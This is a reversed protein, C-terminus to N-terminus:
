LYDGSAGYNRAQKTYRMYLYLFHGALYATRIPLPRSKNICLYANNRFTGLFGSLKLEYKELNPGKQTNKLSFLSFAMENDFEKQIKAGHESLVRSMATLIQREAIQRTALIYSTRVGCLILYIPHISM